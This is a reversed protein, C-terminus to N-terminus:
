FTYFGHGKKWRGVFICHARSAFALAPRCSSSGGFSSPTHTLDPTNCGTQRHANEFGAIPDGFGDPIMLGLPGNGNTFFTSAFHGGAFPFFVRPFGKITGDHSFVIFLSFTRGGDSLDDDHVTTWSSSFSASFLLPTNEWKENGRRHSGSDEHFLLLFFLFHALDTCRM